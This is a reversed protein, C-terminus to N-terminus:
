PFRAGASVLAYFARGSPPTEDTYTGTLNAADLLDWNHMDTTRYVDVATGPPTATWDLTYNGGNPGADNLVIAPETEPNAIAIGSQTNELIYQFALQGDENFGSGALGASSVSNFGLRDIVDNAFADGKRIIQDVQNTNSDWIFIGVDNEITSDKLYAYFAIDGRFNIIPPGFSDFVGNGDPTPDGSSVAFISGTATGYMIHVRGPIEPHNPVSTGAIFALAGGASTSPPM